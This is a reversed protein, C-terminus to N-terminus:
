NNIGHVPWVSATNGVVSFTTFSSYEYGPVVRGTRNGGVNEAVILDRRLM